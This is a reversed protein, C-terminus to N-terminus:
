LVATEGYMSACLVLTFLILLLALLSTLTTAYSIGSAQSM